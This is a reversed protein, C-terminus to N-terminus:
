ATFTLPERGAQAQVHVYPQFPGDQPLRPVHVEKSHEEWSRYTVPLMGAHLQVHLYSQAPVAHWAAARARVVVAVSVGGADRPGPRAAVAGARM